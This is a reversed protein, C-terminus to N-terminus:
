SNLGSGMFNLAKAILKLARWANSAGLRLLMRVREGSALVGDMMGHSVTRLATELERTDIADYMRTVYDKIAGPQSAASSNFRVLAENIRRGVEEPELAQRVGQNELLAEKVDTIAVSVCMELRETNIGQLADVLIQKQLDPNAERMRLALTVASDIARGIEAGDTSAMEQGVRVLLEDPWAAAEALANAIVRVLVNQLSTGMRATLVVMEPDRATLEVLVGAMVEVDEAIAVVAGTTSVSDVTDLMRKMFDMFVARFRPEDQGLIYNGAHLDIIMNSAITMVRGIEEADLASLTNFLASALIEPPLNTKELAVSLVKVITNVLPPVIGVINAVVVPNQMMVEICQTMYDTFYELMATLAERGKGFDTDTFIDDIAPYAARALDPREAHVKMVLESWKNTADAIVKGDIVKIHRELLESREESSLGDLYECYARIIRLYAMEVDYAREIAERTLEPDDKFALELSEPELGAMLRRVAQRTVEAQAAADEVGKKDALDRV